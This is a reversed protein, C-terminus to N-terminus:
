RSPCAAPAAPRRAARPQPPSRAQVRARARAPVAVAQDRRAAACRLPAASAAAPDRVPAPAFEGVASRRVVAARVPLPLVAGAPPLLAGAVVAHLLPAACASRFLPPCPFLP